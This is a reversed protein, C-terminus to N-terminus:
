PHICRNLRVFIAPCSTLTHGQLSIRRDELTSVLPISKKGITWNAISLEFYTKGGRAGYKKFLKYWGRIGVRNSQAYQIVSSHRISYRNSEHEDRILTILIRFCESDVHDVEILIESEAIAIVINNFFISTYNADGTGIGALLIVVDNFFFFFSM